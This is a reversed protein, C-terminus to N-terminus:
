EDPLGREAFSELWKANIRRSGGELFSPILGRSCRHRVNSESWGIAYAVEAVTYGSRPINRDSPSMGKM